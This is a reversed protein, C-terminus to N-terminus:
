LKDYDEPEVARVKDLIRKLSVVPADRVVSKAERLDRVYESDALLDRTKTLEDMSLLIFQDCSARIISQPYLKM